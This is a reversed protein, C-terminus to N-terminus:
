MKIKDSVHLRREKKCCWDPAADFWTSPDGADCTPGDGGPGDGPDCAPADWGECDGHAAKPSTFSPLDYQVALSPPLWFVKGRTSILNWGWINYYEMTTGTTIVSDLLIIEKVLNLSFWTIYLAGDADTDGQRERRASQHSMLTVM